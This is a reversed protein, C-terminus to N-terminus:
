QFFGKFESRQQRAVAEVESRAPPAVLDLTAPDLDEEDLLHNLLVCSGAQKQRPIFKEGALDVIGDISKPNRPALSLGQNRVAWEIVVVPM